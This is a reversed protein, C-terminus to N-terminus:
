RDRLYTLWNASLDTVEGDADAPGTIVATGLIASGLNGFAHGLHTARLNVPLALRRGDENMWLVAGDSMDRILSHAEVYGGCAAQLAELTPTGEAEHQHLPDVVIYTM